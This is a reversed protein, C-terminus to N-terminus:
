VPEYPTGRNSPNVTELSELTPTQAQILMAKTFSNFNEFLKVPNKNKGAQPLKMEEATSSVEGSFGFQLNGNMGFM